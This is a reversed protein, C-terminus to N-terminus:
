PSIRHLSLVSYFEEFIEATILTAEDKIDWIKKCVQISEGTSGDSSDANNFLSCLYGFKIQGDASSAIKSYEQAIM